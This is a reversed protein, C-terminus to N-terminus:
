KRADRRRLRDWQYYMWVPYYTPQEVTTFEAEISVNSAPLTFTNDENINVDGTIVKWGTFEAGSDPDAYLAILDGAEGSSPRAYARGSGSSTVTITYTGAPEPEPIYGSFYNYVALVNKYMETETLYNNKSTWTGAEGAHEQLYTLFNHAWTRRNSYQNGPVGEWNALFDWVLTDLDTSTSALFNDLSGYSGRTQANDGTGHYSGNWYGEVPIYALQGNGDGDAYGNSTVWEHLNYLRGHSSGVNTWQGLGYGGKNKYEYQYNWACPILSEWIGPNVRSEQWWCGCMAAIVYISVNSM